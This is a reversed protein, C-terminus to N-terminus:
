QTTKLRYQWNDDRVEGRKDSHLLEYNGFGTVDGFIFTVGGEIQNYFWVEYPKMNSQNPYRDRQDPEGYILYVRGRDTLYGPRTYNSFNQNVYELRRMYDEKFENISTSPDPDRRQWFTYLFERKGNLSDLKKYQSIENGSAIYKIQDFMKDCDESTMIAFESGAFGRNIRFNTATDVFEPNYYYFRKSSVYGENTSNNVLSLKLTYSDTPLKSLNFFGIDVTSKDNQPIKRSQGDVKKSSSNFLEKYLTFDANPDKLKLNYLEVYYFLVPMKHSFIMSPNPIVELTNKYFISNPNAGEKKINTAIQIDSLAYKDEKIPIAEIIENIEKSLSPNNSDYAKIYLSYKGKPIVMGVVGTYSKLTNTTDVSNAIKWDKRFFLTDTTLNKIEIHVIAEIKLDNSVTMQSPMLDYYFEIYVSSTDYKFRAYDFEFALEDQGFINITSFIFLIFFLKKM